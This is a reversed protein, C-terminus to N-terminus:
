ERCTRKTQEAQPPDTESRPVPNRWPTRFLLVMVEDFGPEALCVVYNSRLREEAIEEIRTCLSELCRQRAQDGHRREVEALMPAGILVLGVAGASEFRQGLESFLDSLAPAGPASPNDILSESSSVMPM